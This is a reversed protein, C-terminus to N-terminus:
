KKKRKRRRRRQFPLLHDLKVLGDSMQLMQAITANGMVTGAFEPRLEGAQTGLSLRQQQARVALLAHTM